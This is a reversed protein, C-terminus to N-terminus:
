CFVVGGKLIPAPLLAKVTNILDQITRNRYTVQEQGLKEISIASNISYYEELSKSLITIASNFNEQIYKKTYINPNNLYYYIADIAVNTMDM